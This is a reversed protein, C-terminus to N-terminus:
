TLPKRKSSVPRRSVSSKGAWAPERRRSRAPPFQRCMSNVDEQGPRPTRAAICGRIVRASSPIALMGESNGTGLTCSAKPSSPPALVRRVLPADPAAPPTPRPRGKSFHADLLVAGVPM